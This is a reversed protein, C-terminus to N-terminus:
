VMHFHSVYQRGKNSLEQLVQDFTGEEEYEHYAKYLKLASRADEISDHVNAQIHERLVVWSLFRLSVKRKSSKVM